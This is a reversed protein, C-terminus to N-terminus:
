SRNPLAIPYFFSQAKLWALAAAHGSIAEKLTTYRDEYLTEYRPHELFTYEGKWRDFIMTEFWFPKAGPTFSYNIGTFVTSVFFGLPEDQQIVRQPGSELFRVWEILTAPIVEGSEDLVAHRM